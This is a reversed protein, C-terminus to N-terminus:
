KESNEVRTGTVPGEPTAVTDKPSEGLFMQSGSNVSTEVEPGTVTKNYKNFPERM